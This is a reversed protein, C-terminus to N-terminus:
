KAAVETLTELLADLDLASTEVKPRVAGVKPKRPLKGLEQDVLALADDLDAIASIEAIREKKESGTLKAIQGANPLAATLAKLAAPGTVGSHHVFLAFALKLPIHNTPQFDSDKQVEVTGQVNIVLQDDVTHNGAAIESRRAKAIKTLQNAAAAITLASVNSLKDMTDELNTHSVPNTRPM